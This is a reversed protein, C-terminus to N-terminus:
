LGDGKGRAAQILEILKTKGANKAFTIEMETAIDALQDRDLKELDVETQGDEGGQGGEGGGQNGNSGADTHSQPDEEVANVKAIAQPRVAELQAIEDATLNFSKGIEPKVRKGNRVVLIAEKILRQPM